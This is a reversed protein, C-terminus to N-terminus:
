PRARVLRALRNRNGAVLRYARDTLGPFARFLAALARGGPLLAVLPAAAAGGSRVAGSSDVLHWSELWRERPLGALLRSGEESQIPIPRLRHRRDWALVKELSWKCFACDGDYLLASRNDFKTAM